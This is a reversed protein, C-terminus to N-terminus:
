AKHYEVFGKMILKEVLPKIESIEFSFGLYCYENELADYLKDDISFSEMLDSDICGVLASLLKFEKPTDLLWKEFNSTKPFIFDDDLEDYKETLKYEYM